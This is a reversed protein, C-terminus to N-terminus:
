ARAAKVRALQELFAEDDLAPDEPVGGVRPRLQEAMARALEGRAGWDLSDRRDLFSRVTALEEASVASVDWTALSSPLPRATVPETARGSKRPARAVVTDAALDGLRQNRRTVLVSTIGVLYVGPLIDVIRLLNRIASAIFGVPQGSSRVVRLSTWRKGPTRGAALVEFAVDYVFFVLFTAIAFLGTAAGGGVGFEVFVVLAAATLVIQITWDILAAVFRSGVGALHVTMTLGEPTEIMMRDEYEMRHSEVMKEVIAGIGPLLELLEHAAGASIGATEAAISDKMEAPQVSASGGVERERPQAPGLIGDDRAEFVEDAASSM